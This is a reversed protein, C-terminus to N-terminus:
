NRVHGGPKILFSRIVELARDSQGRGQIDESEGQGNVTSTAAFVIDGDPLFNMLAASYSLHWEAQLLGESDVGIDPNPLTVDDRVFFSAFNQLSTFNIAPDEPDNSDQIIKYLYTLRSAMKHYGANDLVNFIEEHFTADRIQLTLNVKKLDAKISSTPFVAFVKSDLWDRRTFLIGRAWDQNGDCLTDPTRSRTLLFDNEVWRAITTGLNHNRIEEIHSTDINLTIRGRSGHLVTRLADHIKTSGTENLDHIDSSVGAVGVSDASYKISVLNLRRM